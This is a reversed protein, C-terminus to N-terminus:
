CLSICQVHFFFDLASINDWSIDPYVGSFDEVLAPVTGPRHDSFPDAMLTFTHPSPSPPTEEDDGDSEYLDDSSAESDNEPLYEDDSDSTLGESQTLNDDSGQLDDDLPTYSESDGSSSCLSAMVRRTDSLCM